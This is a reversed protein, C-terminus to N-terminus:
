RPHVKNGLPEPEASSHPARDDAPSPTCTNAPSAPSSSEPTPAPEFV